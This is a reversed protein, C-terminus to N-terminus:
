IDPVTVPDRKGVLQAPAGFMITWPAVDRTIVSGAGVVAGEGVTIGPLVISGAGLFCDKKLIIKGSKYAKYRWPVMPGSMRNGDKPTESHGYVQAGAGIGVYDEIEIGEEGAFIISFPAVHIRKGISIPGFLAGLSVYADIWTYDGISINHGGVIRLGVDFLCNKGVRKFARRLLLRRLGFGLPGPMHVACMRFPDLMATVALRCLSTFPISEGELMEEFTAREHEVRNM